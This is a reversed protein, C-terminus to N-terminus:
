SSTTMPERPWEASALITSPETTVATSALLRVGTSTTRQAHQRAASRQRQHNGLFFDALLADKREVLLEGVVEGINRLFLNMLCMRRTATVIENGFIHAASDIMLMLTNRSWGQALVQESYWRRAPVPKVKELLLAHHGWPVQWLLSDDRTKAVAQPSFDAPQPYARTFALMRDINRASFGKVEPLENRLDRALRPIVAAGWGEIAQRADLMRGIEWYLRILEANVALVARAQAAQIRTKIDALLGAYETLDTM